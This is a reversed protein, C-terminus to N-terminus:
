KAGQSKEDEIARDIAEIALQIDIIDTAMLDVSGGLRAAKARRLEVFATRLKKLNEVHENSL